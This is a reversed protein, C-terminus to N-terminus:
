DNLCTRTRIWSNVERSLCVAKLPSNTAKGAATASSQANLLRPRAVRPATAM